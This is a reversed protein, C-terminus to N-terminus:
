KEPLANKPKSIPRKSVSDNKAQLRDSIQTYMATFTEPHQTYYKLSKKFQASDTHHRKFLKVYRDSGHKYLSDASPADINYLTGDVIHLDIMLNVMKDREIVGDPTNNGCAGLFILALFFLFIHKRM